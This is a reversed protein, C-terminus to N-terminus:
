RGFTEDEFVVLVHIKLNIVCSSQPSVNLGCCKFIL